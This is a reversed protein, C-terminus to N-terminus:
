QEGIVAFADERLLTRLQLAGLLCRQGFAFAIARLPRDAVWGPQGQGLIRSNRPASYFPM